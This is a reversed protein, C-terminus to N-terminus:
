SDFGLSTPKRAIYDCRWVLGSEVDQFYIMGDNPRNPWFLCVDEIQLQRIEDAWTSMSRKEAEGKLFDSVLSVFDPLARKIDRAHAILADDPKSQGGILFGITNGGASVSGAWCNMDDSWRLMGIEPDLIESVRSVKPRNFLSKLAGFL